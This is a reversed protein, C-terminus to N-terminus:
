VLANIATEITSTNVAPKGISGPHLKGIIMDLFRVLDDGDFTKSVDQKLVSTRVTEYRTVWLKQTDQSKTPGKGFELLKVTRKSGIRDDSASELIAAISDLGLPRSSKHNSPKTFELEDSDFDDAEMMTCSAQYQSTHHHDSENRHVFIKDPHSFWHHSPKFFFRLPSHLLSSKRSSARDLRSGAVPM